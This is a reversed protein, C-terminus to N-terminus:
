NNILNLFEESTIIKIGLEKAKNMKSSTSGSEDTVLYSLKKNVSSVTGGNAVVMQELENRTYGEIKGTFCFSLGELSNGEIEPEEEDVFTIYKATREIINRLRDLSTKFKKAIKDGISYTVFDEWDANLIDELSEFGDIMKSIQTEAVGGLNFGSLFQAITAERHENIEKKYKATSTTGFGDLAAVKKWDITYIDPIDEIFGEDILTEVIAGAIHMVGMSKLYRTIRSHAYTYCEMNPCYLRSYTDTIQLDTNCLPCKTPMNIYPYKKALKKVTLSSLKENIGKLKNTLKLFNFANDIKHKM